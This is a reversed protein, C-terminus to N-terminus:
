VCGYMDSVFYSIVAIFLGLICRRPRWPEDFNEQRFIVMRTQISNRHLLMLIPFFLFLILRDNMKFTYSLTFHVIYSVQAVKCLNGIQYM